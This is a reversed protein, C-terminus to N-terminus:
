VSSWAKTFGTNVGLIENNIDIRILIQCRTSLFEWRRFMQVSMQLVMTLSPRRLIPMQYIIKYRSCDFVQILSELASEVDLNNSNAKHM